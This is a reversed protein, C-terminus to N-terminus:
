VSIRAMPPATMGVPGRPDNVGQLGDHNESTYYDRQRLRTPSRFLAPLGQSRGQDQFKAEKGEQNDSIEQFGRRVYRPAAKPACGKKQV